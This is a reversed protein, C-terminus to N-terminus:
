YYFDLDKDYVMAHDFDAASKQRTAHDFSQGMGTQSFTQYVSEHCSRCTQMGVYHASTDYVNLWDSQRKGASPSNCYFAPITVASLALLLLLSRLRRASLM